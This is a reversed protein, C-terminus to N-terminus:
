IVSSSPCLKTAGTSTVTTAALVGFTAASGLPVPAQAAMADHSGFMGAGALALGMIMRKTANRVSKVSYVAKMTRKEKQQQKMEAMLEVIPILQNKIIPHEGWPPNRSAEESGNVRDRKWVRQEYL